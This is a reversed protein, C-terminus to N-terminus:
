GSRSVRWSRSVTSVSISLSIKGGSMLLTSTRRQYTAMSGAYLSLRRGAEATVDLADEFEDSSTYNYLQDEGLGFKM